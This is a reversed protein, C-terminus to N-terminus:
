ALGGAHGEVRALRDLWWTTREADARVGALGSAGVVGQSGM